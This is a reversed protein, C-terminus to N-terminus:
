RKHLKMKMGYKPRLTILSKTGIKQDPDLRLKWKRAMTALVLIGESWAFSEGICRRIGGGFPYYINRNGAEKVSQTEWREPIFSEPDDWFRSDHQLVHPSILVTSGKRIEFGGLEHDDIAQRGIAWAPPDTM